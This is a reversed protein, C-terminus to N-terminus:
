DGYTLYSFSTIPDDTFGNIDKTENAVSAINNTANFENIDNFTGEPSVSSITQTNGNVSARVTNLTVSTVNGALNNRGIDGDTILEAPNISTNTIINVGIVQNFNCNSSISLGAVTPTPTPTLDPAVAIADPRLSKKLWWKFM